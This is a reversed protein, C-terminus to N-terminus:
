QLKIFDIWAKKDHVVELVMSLHWQGFGLKQSREPETAHLFTLELHFLPTSIGGLQQTCSIFAINWAKSGMSVIIHM